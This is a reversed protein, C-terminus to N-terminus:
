VLQSIEEALEKVQDWDTFEVTVSPDTPGKTIRMILQIMFRDFFRYSPYDLKGAIARVIRPELPHRKLWKQLYVSHEITRKHPKRATLNVSLMVLPKKCLKDGYTSLFREAPKLHFGYRIAALVIVLDAEEIDSASVATDRLDFLTVRHASSTLHSSLTHAIKNTQGDQSVFFLAIKAM